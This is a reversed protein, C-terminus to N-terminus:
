GVVFIGALSLLSLGNIEGLENPNSRVSFDTGFLVDKGYLRLLSLVDQFSRILICLVYPQGLEAFETSLTLMMKGLIEIVISYSTTLFVINIYM